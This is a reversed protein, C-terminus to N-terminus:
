EILQHRVAYRVLEANSTFGMKEMLRAKHTSVTRNSISFQDAIENVSKGSALLCLIQYERCSLRDHCVGHIGGQRSFALHEALRPDVFRKGDALRRVAYLLTAVNCNKTIVGAAGGRIAHQAIVPDDRNCFALVSMADNRILLRQILEEGGIGPMDMDLLVVDAVAPRLKLLVEDGSAAEGILQVDDALSILQRLGERLIDHDDAIFLRIPKLDAQKDDSSSTREHDPYIHPTQPFFSHSM